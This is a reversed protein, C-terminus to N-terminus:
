RVDVTLTQESGVRNLEGSQLVRLVKAQATPIMDGIEDLFITGGDAQEFLGRKRASAGTFAGRGHGFLGSEILEPRSGAGHVRGDLLGVDGAVEPLRALAEEASGAEEVNFGEGELVMRVTRRINKEDDVILVTAPPVDARRRPRCRSWAWRSGSM